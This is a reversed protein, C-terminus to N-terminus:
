VDELFKQIGERMSIKPRWDPLTPGNWPNLVRRVGPSDERKEITIPRGNTEEFLKVMDSIKLREGGSLAYSNGRVEEPRSRLLQGAHIYADAIDDIHAFDMVPDTAVMPLPQGSQQAAAIAQILKKRWDRPGYSEFIILNLYDLGEENGYYSLIEQFAQKTAAYLNLARPQTSEFYQFHSGTNILRNVGARRMAELLRTGFSINSDILQAAQEDTHEFVYYGALHVVMDPASTAVAHDLSSQSGDSTFLNIQDKFDTLRDLRSGERVIGAVRIGEDVLRRALEVGIYCTIGTILVSKM